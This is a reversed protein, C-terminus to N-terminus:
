KYWDHHSQGKSKGWQIFKPYAKGIPQGELAPKFGAVPLCLGFPYTADDNVFQTAYYTNAAEINAFKTPRGGPIHVETRGVGGNKDYQSILFPSFDNSGVTVLNTVNTVLFNESPTYDRIITAKQGRQARVNSFVIYTDTDTNDKKIGSSLKLDCNKQKDYTPFRVAFANIYTSSGAPQVPTFEDVISKVWNSENHTIIRKHEIVVDNLDYDGGTPWIDEFLFTGTSTSTVYVTVKDSEDDIVPVNKDQMAYNPSASVMFAFDGFNRDVGDEIGYYMNGDKDQFRVFASNNKTNVGANGNWEANSYRWYTNSVTYRNDKTLNTTQLTSITPQKTYDICNYNGPVLTEWNGVNKWSPNYADPMLFFGITVGPPFKTTFTGDEQEYLLKVTTGENVPADDSSLYHSRNGDKAGFPKQEEQSANPFLIYKKVLSPDAPIQDSPYYYYGICNLYSASERVFTLSVDADTVTKTVIVGEEEVEAKPLITVNVNETPAVYKRNDRESGTGLIKNLKNLITQNVSISSVIGNEDDFAGFRHSENTPDWKVVSYLNDDVSIPWVQMQGARTSRVRTSKKSAPVHNTFSVKGDKVVAAQVDPTLWAPSFLWVTDPTSAIDIVSSFQGNKDLCVSFLANQGPVLENNDDLIVESDFLQIQTRAGAAGYDVSLTLRSALNFNFYQREPVSDDFEDPAYDVCATFMTLIVISSFLLTHKM